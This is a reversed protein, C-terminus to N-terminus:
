NPPLITVTAGTTVGAGSWGATLSPFTKIPTGKGDSGIIVLQAPMTTGMREFAYVSDNWAGIGYLRGYGSGSGVFQKRLNGPTKSAFAASMAAVDVEVLMDNYTSGCPVNPDCLRVTGLGRAKGNQMYFTLDGSLEYNKGNADTGFAGLDTTAGNSEIAYLEGANDGAVLKEDPGLVGAPTFALAYFRQGTKAAINTVKTLQVPGTGSPLKAKYIAVESNVWIDGALNVALDTIIPSSGNGADFPGIDTITQTAPDMSFLEGDSHAYIITPRAPGSGGGDPFAAVADSQAFGSDEAAGGPSFDSGGGDSCGAVLVFAALLPLHHRM